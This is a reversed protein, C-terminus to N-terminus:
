AAEKEPNILKLNNLKYRVIVQRGMANIQESTHYKEAFSHRIKHLQWLAFNEDETYHNKYHEM